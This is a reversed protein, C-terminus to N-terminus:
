DAAKVHHMGDASPGPDGDTGRRKQSRLPVLRRARAFAQQPATVPAAGVTIGARGRVVRFSV